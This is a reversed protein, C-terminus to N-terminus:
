HFLYFLAMEVMKTSADLSLIPPVTPVTEYDRFTWLLPGSDGHRILFVGGGEQKTFM